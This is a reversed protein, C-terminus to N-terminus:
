KRMPNVDEVIEIENGESDHILFSKIPGGTSDDRSTPNAGRSKLLKFTLDPDPVSFVMHIWSPAAGHAAPVSGEIDAPKVLAVDFGPISLVAFQIPGHNGRESLSFGLTNEYWLISRDLDFVSATIHHAKLKLPNDPSQAAAFVGPLLAALLLIRPVATQRIRSGFKLCRGLVIISPIRVGRFDDTM